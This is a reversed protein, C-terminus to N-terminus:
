AFVTYSFILYAVLFVVVLIIFFREHKKLGRNDSNSRKKGHKYKQELRQLYKKESERM